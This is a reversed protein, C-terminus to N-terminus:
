ISRIYLPLSHNSQNLYNGKVTRDQSLFAYMLYTPTLLVINDILRYAIILNGRQNNLIMLQNWLEKHFSDNTLSKKLQLRFLIGCM